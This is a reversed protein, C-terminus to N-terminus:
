RKVERCRIRATVFSCLTPKLHKCKTALFSASKKSSRSSFFWDSKLRCQTALRLDEISFEFGHEAGLTILSEADVGAGIANTLEDSKAIKKVFQDLAEKSM